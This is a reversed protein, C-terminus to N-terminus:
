ILDVMTQYRGTGYVFTMFSIVSRFGYFCLFVTFGFIVKMVKMVGYGSM